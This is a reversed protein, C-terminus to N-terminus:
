GGSVPSLLTLEDGANLKRSFDRGICQDGVCLLLSSSLEGKGDRALKDFNEGHIESISDFLDCVTASPSLEFDDSSRDLAQKLQTTYIVRVNV